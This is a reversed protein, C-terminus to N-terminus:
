QTSLEPSSCGKSVTGNSYEAINCCMKLSSNTIAALAMKRANDDGPNGSNADFKAKTDFIFDWNDMYVVKGCLTKQMSSVGNSTKNSKYGLPREQSYITFSFLFSVVALFTFVKM